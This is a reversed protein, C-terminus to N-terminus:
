SVNKNEKKNPDFNKIRLFLKVTDSIVNLGSRISITTQTKFNVVVPIETYRLISMKQAYLLMELEFAFGNIVCYPLVSKVLSKSYLKAGLQTDSCTFNFINKVLHHYIKSFLRRKLPYNIKSMKNIKSPLIATYKSNKIKCYMNYIVQPDIDNDIDMYGIYEGGAQAMGRRVAYGKGHNEKLYVAKFQNIKKFKSIEERALKDEGDMVLILEFPVGLSELISLKKEIADKIFEGANYSPLIISIVPIV